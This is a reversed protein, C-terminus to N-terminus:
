GGDGDGLPLTLRVVTGKNFESHIAVAGGLARARERMGRIGLSLHAAQRSEGVGVGDDAIVVCLQKADWTAHVTLQWAAAHREVNTVAELVIRYIALERQAGIPAAAAPEDVRFDCTMGTRRMLKSIHWELAVWLGLKDLVVPRTERTAHRMAEFAVDALAMADDLLPDPALGAQAARERSVVLCAKLGTLVCGLDDHLQQAIRLREYERVCEGVDRDDVRRPQTGNCRLEPEEPDPRKPSASDQGTPSGMAALWLPAIVTRFLTEPWWEGSMDPGACNISYM